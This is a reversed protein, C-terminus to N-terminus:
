SETDQAHGKLQAQRAPNEGEVISEMSAQAKASDFTKLYEIYAKRSQDAHELFFHNNGSAARM